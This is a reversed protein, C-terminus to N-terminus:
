LETRERIGDDPEDLYEGVEMWEAAFAAIIKAWDDVTAPDLHAADDDMTHWQPPFPTPIVHLIPVGREMFPIHDDEVYGRTFHNPLKDAQPLFPTQFKSRLLGLKRMRAEIKALAQYSWHTPAFYSPVRPDAAGLLDLLVFLGIAQLPTRYTSMSPYVQSDWAEAMARAGYLSDTESWTEFAEEGDLLLIQVGKDEELGSGAEGSAEMAEWKRTLAADISRAAHLLMACPAASDIAGVFGEPRYLSDYHAVLSLRSVDGAGAWPPDRTFALNSFAVDRDGTAPTKSTSNQWEIRWGPLQQAFLRVFHRQVALSGPTGPVRPVLIPALLAGRKADLDGAGSPIRGLAADSLEEYALACTVCLSLVALLLVLRSLRPPRGKGAM